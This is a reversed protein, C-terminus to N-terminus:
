IKHKKKFHNFKNIFEAWQFDLLNDIDVSRERPMIYPYTKETYYELTSSM